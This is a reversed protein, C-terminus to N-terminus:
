GGALERRVRSLTEPTMHLYGAIVQLPVRAVVEPQTHLLQAYRDRASMITNDYLQRTMRALYYEVILRGLREAGPLTRYAVDLEARSFALLECPELAEINERSPSGSSLSALATVLDGDFSLWTTAERAGDSLFNRVVGRHLFYFETAVEGATLLREGKPVAVARGALALGTAVPRLAEDFGTLFDACARQISDM